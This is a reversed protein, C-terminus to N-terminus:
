NRISLKQSTAAAKAEILWTALLLETRPRPPNKAQPQEFSFQKGLRLRPAAPRDYNLDATSDLGVVNPTRRL